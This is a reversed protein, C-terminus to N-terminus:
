LLIQRDCAAAVQEDHTVILVSRRGPLRRIYDVIQPIHKQDVGAFAEDLILIKRHSLIARAIAIMQRQGGSLNSGGEALPTDLGKELAMVWADAGIGELTRQIEDEDIDEESNGILLNERISGSFIANEQPVYGIAGRLSSASCSRVEQGLLQLSGSTYPYLKLLLRILTTKGCGSEGRLAVIHNAPISINLGAFASSGDEFQCSVGSSRVLFKERELAPLQFAAGGMDEAPLALADFLRDIGVLSTHVNTISSFITLIMTLILSAMQSVLVVGPLTMAGISYLYLAGGITGFFGVYQVGQAFGSAGGQLASYRRSHKRYGLMKGQFAAFVSGSLGGMRIDSSRSLTQMYISLADTTDKQIASFSARMTKALKTYVLLGALGLLYLGACLIWSERGIILTAGIGSILYMLPTLLGYALLSSATDTDRNIRAILEGRQGFRGAAPISAFLLSHHLQQRITNSIKQISITQAYVGISDFAAFAALLVLFLGLEKMLDVAGSQIVVALVQSSIFATLWSIFLNRCAVMASSIGYSLWHRRFLLFFRGLQKFDEKM